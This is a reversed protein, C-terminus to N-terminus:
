ERGWNPGVPGSWRSGDYCARPRKGEFGAREGRGVRQAAVREQSTEGGRRQSGCPSWRANKKRLVFGVSCPWRKRQVAGAVEGKWKWFPWLV